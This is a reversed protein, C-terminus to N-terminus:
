TKRKSSFGVAILFIKKEAALNGLEISLMFAVSLIGILATYLNYKSM